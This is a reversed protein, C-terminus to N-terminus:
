LSGEGTFPLNPFFTCSPEPHCFPVCVEQLCGQKTSQTKLLNVRISKSYYGLSNPERGTKLDQLFCVPGSIHGQVLWTYYILKQAQPINKINHFSFLREKAMKIKQSHPGNNANHPGPLM